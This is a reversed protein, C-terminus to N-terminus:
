LGLAERQKAAFAQTLRDLVIALLVIGTGSVLGLGTDAINMARFVVKGLGEGAVMPTIVQMALAMAIAQNVGLMLTPSAMPLKVRVLSQIEGAGFARCVEDIQAPVHRLGLTTMRIMPPMAYIVTAIVATVKNGGFLMLVPILYVFTPMTQMTDLIPRLINDVVRSYAALIGLPVGVIICIAVSTVTASLTQMTPNWLGAVGTLFMLGTVVTAFLAGGTAWAMVFLAGLTYFWPLGLLFQDLPNLLYLYITARLWKSFAAFYPNVALWDVFADIPERFSMQWSSPFFGIRSVHADWLYIGALILVSIFLFQARILWVAVAEGAAPSVLGVLAQLVLAAATTVARCVADVGRWIADIAKEVALAPDFRALRQPLLRFRMETLDELVGSDAPRSMALTLRDFVIAMLVICLGAEFAWGVRLKTLAKYVEAGLGGAGIFVALVALGLAMMITQNIGAIISPFAQPIQVKLMTQLRTSGFSRAVEITTEPVQRIGLNTLRVAPPMAYIVIAMAAGTEGVGFFFIAPLLYVFAPMTQMLDLVPRVMAEVRDSQSCWIGLLVGLVVSILVSVGMLALTSMAADWMDVVGWFLVSALTFLAFRLGGYRLAMLGFGAVVLPWPKLWLFLEVQQFYHGVFGSIARTYVKVNSQLWEEANNIASPFDFRGSIAEPFAFRFGFLRWVVVSLILGFIAYFVASRDVGNITFFARLSTRSPTAGTLDSM